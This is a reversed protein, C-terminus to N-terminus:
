QGILFYYKNPDKTPLAEYDAKRMTVIKSGIATNVADTIDTSSAGGSGVELKRANGTQDAIYIDFTNTDRPILYMTNPAKSTLGEYARQTVILTKM